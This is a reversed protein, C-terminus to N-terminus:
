GTFLPTFAFRNADFLGRDSLKLEPIVLLAMFSLAMFPARLTSGLGRAGQELRAYAHGVTEGDANSMLGAIPLPLLDVGNGDALAIGGGTRVVANVAACIEERSCGVAILNHSDHAISSALAGHKLGFGHALAVAPAAPRYRNVVALLLLDREPDAEVQGAVVRPRALMSGTVVQGDIAHIVRAQGRGTKLALQEPEIPRAHFHNITEVGIRETLPKGAAAVLRGDVWTRLPRFDRLDAVEVADMPDGLRLLGVPLRYHRVPNLCACRLVDFLPHGAAVARAALRDIHGLLLDDPHKDDSCFMVKEPHRGILPHLEDFNRAASGERILIHMGAAIKDKAEEITLCEHDTDIGAEAYRRADAGRLGPAHGDIPVGRQRALAIKAMVAPDRSLVGPFNMVESLAVVRPEGLLAAIAELGLEAGATEFVTAPVCSPAGFFLKCAALAADDLLYRVGAIGLVNAIEHPDSVTAVTGHRVAQRAFESPPLLSSEIHVHADVFGPLLYALGPREPGLEHIAEIRGGRWTLEAAVIRRAHLDVLNATIRGKTATMDRGKADREGVWEVM